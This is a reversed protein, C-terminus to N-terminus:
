SGLIEAALNKLDSTTETKIPATPVVTPESASMEEPDTVDGEEVEVSSSAVYSINDFKDYGDVLIDKNEAARAKLNLMLIKTIEEVSKIQYITELDKVMDTDYNKVIEEPLASRDDVYSIAGNEAKVTNQNKKVSYETDFGKGTREFKFWVGSDETASNLSTPDQGYDNMYEMMLKQLQRHATAPLVLLGTKGSKDAANYIYNYRIKMSFLYKGLYSIRDKLSQWESTGEQTKKLSEEMNTKKETLKKNYDDIPCFKGNTMYGSVCPKITGREPDNLGWCVIWRKYPYGNSGLKPPLIRYISVGDKLYFWNTKTGTSLSDKNIRIKSNGEM